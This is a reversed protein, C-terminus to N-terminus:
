GEATIDRRQFLYFVLVVAALAYAGLVAAGQWASPLDDSPQSTSSGQIQGNAALVASLNVSPFAKTVDEFVGGVAQLVSSAILEVVFIGLPLGIAVASSRGWVGLFVAAAVYPVMVWTTRVVAAVLDGAFGARLVADYNGDLSSSIAASVALGALMGLLVLLFAFLVGNVLKAAVFHWRARTRVVMTRVTGSGYEGGTSSGAMIIALITGFQAILGASFPIVNEVRLSARLDEVGTADTQGGATQVTAWLLLYFLVVSGLLIGLLVKPMLRKWQRFADSRLANIM